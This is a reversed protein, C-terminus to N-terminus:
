KWVRTKNVEEKKRFAEEFDIDFKNAIHVLFLFVDALELEIDEKTKKGKEFKRTAQALEGVEEVLHAFLDSRSQNEFGRKRCVDIEYKQFDKLTPKEPLHDM